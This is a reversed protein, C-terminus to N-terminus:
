ILHSVLYFGTFGTFCMKSLSYGFKSFDRFSNLSKLPDGVFYRCLEPVGAHNEDSFVSVPLMKKDMEYLPNIRNM